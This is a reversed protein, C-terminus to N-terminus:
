RMGSVLRCDSHHIITAEQNKNIALPFLPLFDNGVRVIVRLLSVEFMLKPSLAASRGDLGLTVCEGTEIAVVITCGIPVGRVVADNGLVRPADAIVVVAVLPKVSSGIAIVVAFM